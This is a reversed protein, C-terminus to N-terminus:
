SGGVTGFIAAIAAAILAYAGVLGIYVSQTRKRYLVGLGVALTFLWWLYFLDILGLFRAVFAEEDGPWFVALNSVGNMSGNRFWFPLAFLAGLALIVASHNFIALLQKYSATGGAIAFVGFLLGSLAAVLALLMVLGVVNGIIRGALNANSAMMQARQEPGVTMGIREMFEVQKDLQALQGTETSTFAFQAGLIVLSVLLFMGLWRPWSVVSEFTNKPSFIVGIFRQVISLPAPGGAHSSAPLTMPSALGFSDL